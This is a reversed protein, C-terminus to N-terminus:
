YYCYHYYYYGVDSRLHQESQKVADLEEQIEEMADCKDESHSLCHLRILWLSGSWKEWVDTALCCYNIQLSQQKRDVSTMMSWDLFAHGFPLSVM